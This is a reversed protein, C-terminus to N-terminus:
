GSPAAGRRARRRRRAQDPRQSDFDRSGAVRHGDVTALSATFAPETPFAAGLDWYSAAVFAM